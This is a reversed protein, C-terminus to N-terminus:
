WCMSLPCVLRSCLTHTHTHTYTFGRIVRDPLHTLSDPPIPPRERWVRDVLNVPVSKLSRNSSELNAGYDEQTELPPFQLHNRVGLQILWLCVPQQSADPPKTSLKGDVQALVKNVNVRVSLLSPSYLSVSPSSSHISALRAAQHSRPSWGSQSVASPCQPVDCM